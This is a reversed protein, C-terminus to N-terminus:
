WFSTGDRVCVCLSFGILFKGTMRTQMGVNPIWFNELLPATKFSSEMIEMKTTSHPKRMETSFYPPFVSINRLHAVKCMHPCTQKPLYSTINLDKFFM